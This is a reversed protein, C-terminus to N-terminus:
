GYLEGGFDQLIVDILKVTKCNRVVDEPHMWYGNPNTEDQPNANWKDLEEQLRDRYDTLTLRTIRDATEHDIGLLGTAHKSKEEEINYM